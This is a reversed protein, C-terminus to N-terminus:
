ELFRASRQRNWPAELSFVVEQQSIPHPFSMRGQHLAIQGQSSSRPRAGYKMDAIIPHGIASLQARIQHYRGTKLDIEIRTHEAFRELVKFDLECLKAGPDTATAILAKYEGHILYHHLSGQDLSVIGEVIAVYTKKFQHARMSANLRSLAKSTRAFLVLGSVPKDLRHVAHLFVADPKCFKEKIWQKAQEELSDAGEISPQTALGAPKDVVLLHNDFFVVDM